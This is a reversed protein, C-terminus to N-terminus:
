GGGRVLQEAWVWPVHARKLAQALALAEDHDSLWVVYSSGSGSMVTHAPPAGKRKLLTRFEALDPAVHFAAHELQNGLKFPIVHTKLADVVGPSASPEPSGVADFAEYVAKTSLQIGPYAVVLSGAALPPLPEVEAGRGTARAARGAVGTLFPVDMGLLGAQNALAGRFRPYRSMGWTLVAAADASGGGLGAGSPIEKELALQVPIEEGVVRSLLNLAKWALNDERPTLDSGSVTFTAAPAPALRLRDAADIRHLVLDVQHWGPESDPRVDLSLTVKACALITEANM